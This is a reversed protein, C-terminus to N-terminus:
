FTFEGTINTLNGEEDEDYSSYAMVEMEEDLVWGNSILVDKYDSIHNTLLEDYLVVIGNEADIEYKFTTEDFQHYPLVDKLYENMLDKIENSWEKNTSASDSTSISEGNNNSSINEGCGSLGVLLLAPILLMVKKM